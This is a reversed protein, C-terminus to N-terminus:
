QKARKLRATDRNVKERVAKLIYRSYRYHNGPSFHESLQDVAEALEGDLTIETHIKM